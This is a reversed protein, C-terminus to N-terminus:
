GEGVVHAGAHVGRRGTSVCADDNGHISKVKREGDEVGSAVRLVGPRSSPGREREVRVRENPTHSFEPSAPATVNRREIVRNVIGDGAATAHLTRM